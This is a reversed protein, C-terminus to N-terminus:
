RVLSPLFRPHEAFARQYSGGLAREELPIRFALLIANALSFLIATIVLGGILPICAIELVVACYNPHRVYRYPGTTRIPM